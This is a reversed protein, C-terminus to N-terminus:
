DEQPKAGVFQVTLLQPNGPKDALELVEVAFKGKQLKSGAFWTCSYVNPIEEGLPTRALGEVTMKPGGSKLQVVEGASYSENM